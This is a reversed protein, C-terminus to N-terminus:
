DRIKLFNIRVASGEPQFAIISKFDSSRHAPLPTVAPGLDVRNAGDYESWYLRGDRVALM